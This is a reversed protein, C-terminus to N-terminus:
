TDFRKVQLENYIDAYEDKVENPIRPDVYLRIIFDNQKKFEKLVEQVTPKM